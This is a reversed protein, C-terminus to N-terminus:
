EVLVLGLNALGCLYPRNELFGWHVETGDRELHRQGGDIAAHFHQEAAKLKRAELSFIGLHNHADAHRPDFELVRRFLRAACRRDGAWWREMGEEFSEDAAHDTVAPLQIM